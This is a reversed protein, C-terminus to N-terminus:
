LSTRSKKYSARIMEDFIVPNTLLMKFMSANEETTRRIYADERGDAM